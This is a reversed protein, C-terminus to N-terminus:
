LVKKRIIKKNEKSWQPLIKYIENTGQARPPSM